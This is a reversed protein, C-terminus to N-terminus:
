TKSDENLISLVESNVTYSAILTKAGAKEFGKTLVINMLASVLERKEELGPAQEVIKIDEQVLRHASKIKYARVIGKQTELLSREIGNIFPKDM